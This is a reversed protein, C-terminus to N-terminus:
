MGHFDSLIHWDTATAGLGQGTFGVPGTDNSNWLYVRGDANRFLVDARGDGDYDGIAAVSWDLSVLGVSQGVFNVASSGTQSNWVYLEGDTHRWLIDSRGDGNFDGLGLITWDNGVSSITQGTMAPAGSPSDLWVYVDGADSRWLVDARGDGNLDGVGKISWNTGVTGLSQGLFNVAPSGAQSNWVYVEGTSTNRFLIDARGDGNFDGTQPVVSWIPDVYSISQGTFRVAAGADSRYVYLDGADNRWLIDAKGDGSYDAVDQVHWGLGPNGLSQGQFAGQSSQSNWVYVEGSDNRWLVDSKGDLNFDSPPGQAPSLAPRLPPLPLAGIFNDLTLSPISVNQLLLTNAGGFSILTDAGVQTISQLTVRRVDIWDQSVDFDTVVDAGDNAFVVFYDRGAGGTLTDAAGEPAIVPSEGNGGYGALIDSGDGGYLHDSGSGGAILDDGGGGYLTDNGQFGALVDM